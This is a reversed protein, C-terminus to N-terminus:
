ATSKALLASVVADLDLCAPESGSPVVQETEDLFSAIACARTRLVASGHPSCLEFDVTARGADDLGPHIMVDGEGVPEYRGTRLLSRAFTWDVSQDDLTFRATVAFPDEPRYSLVCVVPIPPGDIPLVEFDAACTVAPRPVDM